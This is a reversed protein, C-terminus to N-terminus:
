EQPQAPLGRLFLEAKEPNRERIFIAAKTRDGRSAPNRKKESLDFLDDVNFSFVSQTEKKKLSIVKLELPSIQLYIDQGKKETKFYQGNGEFFPIGPGMLKGIQGAYVKQEKPLALEIPNKTRQKFTKGFKFYGLEKSKSGGLDKLFLFYKGEANPGKLQLCPNKFESSVSTFEVIKERDCFQFEIVSSLLTPLPNLYSPIHNSSLKKVFEFAPIGWRPGHFGFVFGLQHVMLFYLNRNQSWFKDPVVSSHIDKQIFLIGDANLNVPDYKERILLSYEDKLHAYDSSLHSALHNWDFAIMLDLNPHGCEVETWHDTNQLVENSQVNDLERNWFELAQSFNKRVDDVSVSLEGASFDFCYKVESHTELFWPNNEYKSDTALMGVSLATISLFSSALIVLGLAPILMNVKPALTKIKM